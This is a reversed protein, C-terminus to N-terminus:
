NLTIEMYDFKEGTESIKMVFTDQQDTLYLEYISWYKSKLQGVYEFREKLPKDSSLIKFVSLYSQIGDYYQKGYDDTAGWVIMYNSTFVPFSGGDFIEPLFVADGNKADILITVCVEGCRTLLHGEIRDSYGNYNICKEPISNECKFSITKSNWTKLVFNRKDGDFSTLESKISNEELYLSDIIRFDFDLNEPTYNIESLDEIKIENFDVITSDVENQSYLIVQCILILFITLNKKM